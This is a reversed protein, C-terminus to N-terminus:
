WNNEAALKYFEDLMKIDFGYFKYNRRAISLWSKEPSVAGRDVTVGSRYNKSMASIISTIRATSEIFRNEAFSVNSNVASKLVPEPLSVLQGSLTAIVREAFQNPVLGATNEHSGMAENVTFLHISAKLLMSVKILNKIEEKGMKLRQVKTMEFHIYSRNEFFGDIYKDILKYMLATYAGSFDRRAETKKLVNMLYRLVDDKVRDSTINQQRLFGIFSLDINNHVITNVGSLLPQDIFGMLSSLLIKQIGQWDTGPFFSTSSLTPYLQAGNIKLFQLIQEEKQLPTLNQLAPNSLLRKVFLNAKELDTSM